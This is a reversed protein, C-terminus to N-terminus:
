AARRGALGEVVDALKQAAKPTALAHARAATRALAMPDAFIRIIMQALSDSSLDSQRVRWGAEARALIDANPTQNDDLAGPLPVMIAPRGIAMLEAVTGAGSRAIVLHTEAMRRPLDSFFPELQARIEANRYITRVEEIDEPRCQQVVNLRMKMDHPLRTLAAPVIESLARAGQSGGFVLLRLPGNTEPVNYSAGWVAEVEPRLPNGTLVVKSPDAPAFRAIPFAAAVTRVKNMVLRNARGVVANQEIIATPLRLLTAALMVPVSPYGGFGIVADPRLKMLRVLATVLGAAIKFPATVANFPSSPVTQILAGPFQTAYHIFRADTMVVIKRGRKILEDALAQAPFLHGGTGGASLVIVSM